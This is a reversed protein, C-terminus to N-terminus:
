EWNKQIEACRVINEMLAHLTLQGVGYPVPTIRQRVKDVEKIAGCLKGDKFRTTVDYTIPEEVVPSVMWESDKGTAEIVVDYERPYVAKHNSRIVTTAFGKSMALEVLPKGVLDSYGCILMSLGYADDRGQDEKLAWMLHDMIGKATCPIIGHDPRNEANLECNILVSNIPDPKQIFYCDHKRAYLIIEKCDPFNSSVKVLDIQIGLEKALKMKNKVYKASEETDNTLVCLCSPTKGLQRIREKIEQKKLMCFLKIGEASWYNM